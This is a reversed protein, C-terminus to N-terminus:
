QLKIKAEIQYRLKENFYDVSSSLGKFEFIRFALLGFGFLRIDDKNKSSLLAVTLALESGFYILATTKEDVSFYGFGPLISSYLFTDAKDIKHNEYYNFAEFPLLKQIPKNQSPALIFCLVLILLIKFLWKKKM